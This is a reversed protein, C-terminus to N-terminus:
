MHVHTPLGEVTLDLTKCIRQATPEDVGCAIAAAVVKGRISNILMPAYEQWAENTFCVCGADDAADSQLDRAKINRKANKVPRKHKTKRKRPAATAM